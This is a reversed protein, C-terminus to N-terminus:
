TLHVDPWTGKSGRNEKTGTSTCGTYSVSPAGVCGHSTSKEIDEERTSHSSMHHVVVVVRHFSCVFSLINGCDLM